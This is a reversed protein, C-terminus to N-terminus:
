ARQRAAAVAAARLRGVKAGLVASGAIVGPYLLAGGCVAAAWPGAVEHLTSVAASVSSEAHPPASPVAMAAADAAAAAAAATGDIPTPVAAATATGVEKSLAAEWMDSAGAAVRAIVGHVDVGLQLLVYVGGVTLLSMVMRQSVLYALGYTDMLRGAASLMSSGSNQDADTTGGLVRGLPLSPTSSPPQHRRGGIAGLLASTIRVRRLSPMVRALFGAMAVDLPLRVRRLVRAIGFALTFDVPISLHSTCLVYISVVSLMDLAVYSAGTEVPYASLSANLRSVWAPPAVDAAPAPPLREPPASAASPPQPARGLHRRRQFSPAVCRPPLACAHAPLISTRSLRRLMINAFNVRSAAKRCSCLTSRVIAFEHLLALVLPYLEDDAYLYIALMLLFNQSPSSLVRIPGVKTVIAKFALSWM